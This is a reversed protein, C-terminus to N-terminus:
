AGVRIIICVGLRSILEKFQKAHPKTQGTEHSSHIIWLQTKSIPDSAGRCSIQFLLSLLPWRTESVPQPRLM